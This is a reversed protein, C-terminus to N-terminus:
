EERRCVRIECPRGYQLLLQFLLKCGLLLHTDSVIVCIHATRNHAAQALAAVAESIAPSPADRGPAGHPAQKRTSPGFNEQGTRRSCYARWSLGPKTPFLPMEGFHM